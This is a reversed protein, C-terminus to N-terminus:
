GSFTKSGRAAGPPPVAEDFIACVVARSPPQLDPRDLVRRLFAQFEPALLV